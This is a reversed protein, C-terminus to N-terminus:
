SLLSPGHASQNLGAALGRGLASLGWALASLGRALAEKGAAKRTRAQVSNCM